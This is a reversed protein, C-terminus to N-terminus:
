KKAAVEFFLEKQEFRKSFSITRWYEGNAHSFDKADSVLPDPYPLPSAADFCKAPVNWDGFLHFSIEQNLKVALRPNQTTKSRSSGLKRPRNSLAEREHSFLGLVPSSPSM